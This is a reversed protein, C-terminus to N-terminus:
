IDGWKKFSIIGKREKYQKLGSAFGREFSFKRGEGRVGKSKPYKEKIRRRKSKLYDKGWIGLSYGSIANAWSEGLDLGVRYSDKRGM